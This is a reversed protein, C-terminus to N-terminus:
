LLGLTYAIITPLYNVALYGIVGVFISIGGKKRYDEAQDESEIKIESVKLIVRNRYILDGFTAIVIRLILDLVSGAFATLVAVEGILSINEVLISFYEIYNRAASTDLMSVANTFPIELMSLAIQVAGIIAGWLYMKRSLLWGCPTLFALWNWSAKKGKKFSVFKPIYRHTNSVVFKRAEGATVGNGLDTNEKVGGLFDFSVFRGDVKSVNPANCNPCAMEEADYKEGCVGCTMNTNQQPQSQPEENVPEPRKYENETGHFENLGCHGISNYCDRHHPAGCEPCYIVDDEAFLYAKCVACKEGSINLSM